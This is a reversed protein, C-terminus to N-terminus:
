SAGAAVATRDLTNGANPSQRPCPAYLLATARAGSGTWEWRISTGVPEVGVLGGDLCRDRGYDIRERYLHVNGDTGEFTLTGGCQLSPYEMSGAAGKLSLIASWEARHDGPGTQEARGCWQGPLTQAEAPASALPCVLMLCLCRM